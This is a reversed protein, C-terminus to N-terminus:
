PTRGERWGRDYADGVARRVRKDVLEALVTVADGTLDHAITM